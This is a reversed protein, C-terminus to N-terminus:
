LTFMKGSLSQRNKSAWESCEQVFAQHMSLDPSLEPHFSTVWVSGQRAAVLKGDICALCEVKDSLAEALPARIFVAPVEGIGRLCLLQRFSDRQRGFANRTVRLDIRGLVLQDPLGEVVESGLLIMGACTGWLPKQFQRLPEELGFRRILKGITTSEGGPLILGDLGELHRPLRVEVPRAGCAQLCRCHEAFAGQLALVGVRTEGEKSPSPLPHTELTEGEKSPSPLPHTKGVV